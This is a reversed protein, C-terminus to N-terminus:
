TEPFESNAQVIFERADFDRYILQRSREGRFHGGRDGFFQFGGAERVNGQVQFPVALTREVLGEFRRFM